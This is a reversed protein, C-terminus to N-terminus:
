IPDPRPPRTFFNGNWGFIQCFKASNLVTWITLRSFKKEIKKHLTKLFRGNGTFNKVRNYFKGYDTLPRNRRQTGLIPLTWLRAMTHLPFTRQILNATVFLIDSLKQLFKVLDTLFPRIKFLKVSDVFEVLAM